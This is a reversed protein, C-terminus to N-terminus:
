ETTTPKMRYVKMALLPNTYTKKVLNQMKCKIDLRTIQNINQELLNYFEKIKEMKKNAPTHVNM